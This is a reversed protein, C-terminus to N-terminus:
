KKLEWEILDRLLEPMFYQKKTGHSLEPYLPGLTFMDVTSVKYTRDHDLPIGDVWIEKVHREGDELEEAEFTLGDYIMQGMVKGRFGLGKLVFNEMRKSSAQLIVEKLQNGKIWVNCPNIPHPCLRHIDKKTIEGKPLPELIIGANVMSIEGNCWDKISKALLTTFPSPKFWDLSLEEELFTIPQNLVQESQEILRDIQKNSRENEHEWKDMSYLQAHKEVIKNIQLDLTIEIEGVYQGFKGAGTLLVGNVRKGSQLVHHTHAGIIVDIQPYKEALWEDDSIGLHSLFVIMDCLSELKNLVEEIRSYPDEIKWKLAEYFLPYYTTLGFVGVKVGNELTFVKFSNTWSPSSGDPYFLNDVLVPFKAENYLNDLAEHSLTIGENNGIVHGDIHLDNLLAINGKGDTAESLPHFRDVHDGGDFVLVSRGKELYHNRKFDIFSIIKSWNEFHSHLDNIHFIHLKEKM